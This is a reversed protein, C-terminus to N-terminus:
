VYLYDQHILSFFFCVLRWFPGLFICCIFQLNSLLFNSHSNRSKRISGLSPVNNMGRGTAFNWMFYSSLFYSFTNNWIPSTCFVQAQPWSPFRSIFTPFKRTDWSAGFLFVFSPQLLGPRGPMYVHAVMLFGLLGSNWLRKQSNSGEGQGIKGEGQGWEM